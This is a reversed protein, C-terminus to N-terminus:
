KTVKQQCHGCRAAHDSIVAGGAAELISRGGDNKVAPSNAFNTVLNVVDFMSAEDPVEESAALDLLAMTSRDPIGQERALTRLAREVNDVRMERLSYFHEISKEARSFALEALEELESLVEEVSQGRADVKLGSDSRTMGNTCVLRHLYEEVTPALGQKMNLGMRVGGATIDGVKKGEASLAKGSEIVGTKSTEPVRVDFGFFAPTDILRVVPADEGLVHTAARVIQVPEISVKGWEGVSSIHEGTHKISADRTMTNRLMDNLFADMVASDVTGHARKFFATPIQLLDTFEGLAQETVKFEKSGVEITPDTASLHFKIENPHARTEEFQSTREALLTGLSGLNTDLAPRIFM